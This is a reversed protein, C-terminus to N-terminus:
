IALVYSGAFAPALPANFPMSGSRQSAGRAACLLSVDLGLLPKLETLLQGGRVPLLGLMSIPSDPLQQRDRVIGSVGVQANEQTFLSAGFFRQCHKVPGQFEERVIALQVKVAGNCQFFQVAGVIRQIAVSLAERNLWVVRICVVVVKCSELFKSPVLM